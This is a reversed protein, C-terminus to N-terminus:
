GLKDNRPRECSPHASGPIPKPSVGPSQLRNRIASRADPIVVLPSCETTGPTRFSSLPAVRNKRADPIVVLCVRPM